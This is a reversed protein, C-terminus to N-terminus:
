DKTLNQFTKNPNPSRRHNVELRLAFFTGSVAAPAKPSAGLHM